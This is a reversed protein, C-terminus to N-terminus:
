RIQNKLFVVGNETLAMSEARFGMRSLDKGAQNKIRDIWVRDEKKAKMLRGNTEFARLILFDAFEQQQDATFKLFNPDREMIPRLQGVLGKAQSIVAPTYAGSKMSMLESVDTGKAAYFNLLIYYSFADVLDNSKMSLNAMFYKEVQEITNPGYVLPDGSASRTVGATYSKVHALRQTQSVRFKLKGNSKYPPAAVNPQVKGHERNKRSNEAAIENTINQAAYSAATQIPPPLSLTWDALAPSVYSIAFFTATLAVAFGMNPKKTM